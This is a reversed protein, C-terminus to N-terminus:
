LEALCGLCHSHWALWGVSLAPAKPAAPLSESLRQMRAGEDAASAALASGIACLLSVLCGLCPSAGEDSITAAQM